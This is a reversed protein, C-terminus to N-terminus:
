NGAFKESVGAVASEAPAAEGDAVVPIVRDQASAAEASAAVPSNSISPAAAANLSVCVTSVEEDAISERTAAHDDTRPASITDASTEEDEKSATRPAESFASGVM